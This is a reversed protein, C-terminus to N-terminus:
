ISVVYSGGDLNPVFVTEDVDYGPVLRALM